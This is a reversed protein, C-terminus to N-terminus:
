LVGRQDIAVRADTQGLQINEVRQRLDLHGHGVLLGIALLKVVEGAGNGLESVDLHLVGHQRAPLCGSLLHAVELLQRLIGLAVDPKQLALQTHGHAPHANSLATLGDDIHMLWCLCPHRRRTSIGVLEHIHSPFAKTSGM